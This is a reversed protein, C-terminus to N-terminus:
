LLSTFISVLLLILIIGLHKRDLYAAKEVPGLQKHDGALIIRTSKTSLGVIPIYTEMENAQFYRNNM